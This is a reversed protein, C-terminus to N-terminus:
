VGNNIEKEERHSLGDRRPNRHKKPAKANSYMPYELDTRPALYVVMGAKIAYILSLALAYGPQKGIAREIDKYLMPNSVKEVVEKIEESLERRLTKSTVAINM